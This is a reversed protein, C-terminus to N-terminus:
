LFCKFNRLNLYFKIREVSFITAFITAFLGIPNALGPIINARLEMGFRGMWRAKDTLHYLEHKIVFKQVVPNLDKGVEAHSGKGDKLFYARGFVPGLKEKTTFYIKFKEGKYNYEKFTEEM